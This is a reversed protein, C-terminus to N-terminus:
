GDLFASAIALYDDPLVESEDRDASASLDSSLFLEYEWSSAIAAGSKEDGGPHTPGISHSFALWVLAAAAAAGIAPILLPRREPRELRARLAEDFEVREAATMPPPAYDGALRNVFEKAEADLPPRKHHSSTM